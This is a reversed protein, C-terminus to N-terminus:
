NKRARMDASTCPRSAGDPYYIETQRRYFHDMMRSIARENGPIMRASLIVTDGQKSRSIRTLRRARHAVAGVDARGPLRRRGRVGKRASLQSHGELPDGTGTPIKLFGLEEAVETNEVM